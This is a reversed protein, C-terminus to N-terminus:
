LCAAAPRRRHPRWLDCMHAGLHIALETLGLNVEYHAASIVAQTGRLLGALRATERADCVAAEALERGVLHNVTAAASRSADESADVFLVRAAEGHKALDYGAAVGQRGAGIVAYSYRM